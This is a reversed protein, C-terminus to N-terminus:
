RRRLDALLLVQLAAAAVAAAIIIVTTKDTGESTPAAPIVTPIYEDDEENWWGPEPSDSRWVATLVVDESTVTYWGETIVTGGLASMGGALIRGSAEWGVFTHGERCM